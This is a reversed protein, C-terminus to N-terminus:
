QLRRGLVKETFLVSLESAKQRMHSRAEELEAAIEVRMKELLEHAKDRGEKLIEKEEAIAQQRVDHRLGMAKARAELIKSRYAADLEQAEEGLRRAEQDAGEIRESRAKLLATIPDLILKKVIVLSLLFLVAQILITYNPTVQEM